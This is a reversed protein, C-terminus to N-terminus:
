RFIVCNLLFELVNPFHKPAGLGYLKDSFYQRYVRLVGGMQLATGQQSRLKPSLSIGCYVEFKHQLVGGIQVPSVGGMQVPSVKSFIGPPTPTGSLEQLNAAGPCPVLFAEMIKYERLTGNM